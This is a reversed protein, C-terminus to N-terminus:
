IDYIRSNFNKNNDDNDLKIKIKTTPFVSKLIVINEVVDIKKNNFNNTYEEENKFVPKKKNIKVDTNTM